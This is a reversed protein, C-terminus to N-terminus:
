INEYSLNIKNATLDATLNQSKRMAPLTLLNFIGPIQAHGCVCMIHDYKTTARNRTCINIVGTMKRWEHERVTTEFCTNLMLSFIGPIHECEASNVTARM